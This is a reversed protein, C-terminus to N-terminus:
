QADEISWARDADLTLFWHSGVNISYKCYAWCQVLAGRCMGQPDEGCESDTRSYHSM